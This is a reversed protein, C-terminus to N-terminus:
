KREDGNLCLVQISFFNIERNKEKLIRLILIYKM